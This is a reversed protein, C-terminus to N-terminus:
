GKREGLYNLARKGAQSFLNRRYLQEADSIVDHLLSARNSKGQEEWTSRVQVGVKEGLFKVSEPFSLNKFQMIFNFANGGAGCGFCHFIGKKPSVIFSPTKESHFPCLAKYNQGAKRLPVYEGVIDVINTRERIQNIIEEPIYM